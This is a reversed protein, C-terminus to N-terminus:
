ANVTINPKKAEFILSAIYWHVSGPHFWYRVGRNRSLVAVPQNREPLKKSKLKIILWCIGFIGAQNGVVPENNPDTPLSYKILFAIQLTFMTGM